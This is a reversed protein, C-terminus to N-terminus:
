QECLTGLEFVLERERELTETKEKVTYTDRFSKVDLQDM